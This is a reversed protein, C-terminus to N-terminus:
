VHIEEAYRLQLLYLHNNRNNCPWSTRIIPEFSPVSNLKLAIRLAQHWYYVPNIDIKHVNSVYFIHKKEVKDCSRVPSDMLLEKEQFLLIFFLKQRDETSVIESVQLISPLIKKKESLKLM